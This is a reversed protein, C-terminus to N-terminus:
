AHAIGAYLALFGVTDQLGHAIIAPWLNRGWLVTSAAVILSGFYIAVVGVPGQYFHGLAFPISQLFIAAIWAGRGEGLVQAIRTMLFGRFFMEEGFGGFLWGSPLLVLLTSLNGRLSAFHQEALTTSTGTLHGVVPDLIPRVLLDFTMSAAFVLLGLVITRLWRAQVTLGFEALKEGRVRFWGCALLIFGFYLYTRKILPMEPLPIHMLQAAAEAMPVFYHNLLLLLTLDTLYLARTRDIWPLAM